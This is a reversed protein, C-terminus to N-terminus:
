IGLKGTWLLHKRLECALHYSAQMFQFQRRFSRTNALQSKLRVSHWQLSRKEWHITKFNQDKVFQSGSWSPETDVFSDRCQSTSQGCQGLASPLRAQVWWARQLLHFKQSHLQFSLDLVSCFSGNGSRIQSMKWTIQQYRQFFFGEFRTHLYCKQFSLICPM